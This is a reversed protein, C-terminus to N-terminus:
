ITISVVALQLLTTTKGSGPEGLLVVRQAEKVPVRADAVPEGDKDFADGKIRELPLPAFGMDMDMDLGFGLANDAVSGPRKEAQAELNVYLADRLDAQSKVLLWQVYDAIERSHDIEALTEPEPTSDAAERRDPEPPAVAGAIIPTQPLTALLAVIKGVGVRFQTEDCVIPNLNITALSMFHPDPKVPIIPLNLSAAFLFEKEVWDSQEAHLTDVYLMAYSAELGQKIRRFWKAGGPISHVDRWTLVGEARLAQEMRNVFDTDKRSYSIFLHTM